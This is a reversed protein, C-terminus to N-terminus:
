PQDRGEGAAPVLRALRRIARSAAARDPDGSDSQAHVRGIQDAYDLVQRRLAPEDDRPNRAAAARRPAAARGSGTRPYDHPYTRACLRITRQSSARFGSTPDTFQQRTILSIIRALIVIGVKRAMPTIYGRDEIYRSGVVLDSGSAILDSVLLPIEQPNHQGDGDNQVTVEYGHQAAYLFGTQVAAGIGVNYPMNLVVAGHTTAIARTDDTSGDNIVAIDAWPAHQHILGIVHAISDAENLAPIIVLTKPFNM